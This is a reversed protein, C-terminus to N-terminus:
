NSSKQITTNKLTQKMGGMYDRTMELAAVQEIGSALLENYFAGVAKGLQRGAEESYLVEKLTQLISPLRDDLIDFLENVQEIDSVTITKDGMM